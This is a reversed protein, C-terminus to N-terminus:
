FAILYVFMVAFFLLFLVVAGVVESVIAWQRRSVDRRYNEIGTNM